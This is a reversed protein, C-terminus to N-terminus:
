TNSRECDACACDSAHVPATAYERWLFALALAYLATIVAWTM